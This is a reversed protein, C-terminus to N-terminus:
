GYDEHGKNEMHDIAILIGKYVGVIYNSALKIPLLIMRKNPNNVCLCM